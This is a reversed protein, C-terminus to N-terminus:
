GQVDRGQLHITGFVLFSLECCTEDDTNLFCSRSLGIFRCIDSKNIRSGQFIM